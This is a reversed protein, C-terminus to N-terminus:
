IIETNEPPVVDISLYRNVCKFYTKVDSANFTGGEVANSGGSAATDPTLTLKAKVQGSTPWPSALPSPAAESVSEAHRLNVEGTWNGSVYGTNAACAFPYINSQLEVILTGTSDLLEIKEQHSFHEFMDKLGQMRYGFAVQVEAGATVTILGTELTLTEYDTAAKGPTAVSSKVWDADAATVHSYVGAFDQVSDTRRIQGKRAFASVPRRKNPDFEERRRPFPTPM